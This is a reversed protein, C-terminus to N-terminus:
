RQIAFIIEEAVHDFRDYETIYQAYEEYLKCIIEKVKILMADNSAIIMKRKKKNSFFKLIGLPVLLVAVVGLVIGLVVLLFNDLVAAFIIAVVGAVLSLAAFVICLIFATDKVTALQSAKKKEYFAEAKRLEPERSKFNVTTQYDKIAVPHNERNNKRYENFYNHAADEILEKCLFFMNRRATESFELSRSGFLWDVCEKMLNLPSYKHEKYIKYEDEAKGLEGVCKIIMENYEIEDTYAREKKDPTDLLQSIFKEVYIYSSDKSPHNTSEVFNLIAENDKAMELVESMVAYDKVYNRLYDFVFNESSNYQVLHERILTVIAGRDNMEISKNYEEFLYEKISETLKDAKESRLDVSHLLLLIFEVDDGLKEIKKYCNFWKLAADRRGILLNFMMFFVVTQKEDLSLAQEIARKAAKEDEGKWHMIALMACSLWFDPSQLHEKEVSKFILEPTVIDLSINDIFARVIKRVMRFNAFEFYIKNTLERIRKNATEINKFGQYLVAIHDQENSIAHLTEDAYEIVNTSNDLKSNANNYSRTLSATAAMASNCVASIEQRMVNNEREIQNCERQLDSIASRLQSADM